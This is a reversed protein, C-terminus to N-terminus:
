PGRSTDGNTGSAGDIVAPGTPARTGLSNGGAHSSSLASISADKELRDMADAMASVVGPLNELRMAISSGRTPYQDVWTRLTVM